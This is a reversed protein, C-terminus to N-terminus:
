FSAPPWFSSRNPYRVSSDYIAREKRSVRCCKPSHCGRIHLSPFPIHMPVCLRPMNRVRLLL